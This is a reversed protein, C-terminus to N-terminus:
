APKEAEAADTGEQKKSDDAAGATPAPKEPEKMTGVLENANNKAVPKDFNREPKVDSPPACCANGM